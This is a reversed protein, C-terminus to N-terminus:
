TRLVKIKCIGEPSDIFKIKTGPKLPLKISNDKKVIVYNEEEMTKDGM